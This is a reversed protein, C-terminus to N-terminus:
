ATPPEIRAMTTEVWTQAAANVQEPTKGSPDIPEGIVVQVAGSRILGKRPWFHGADHAIPVVPMGTEVSLVAGSIGYRRTTYPPLRTGEPFIMLWRGDALARKGQEVVQMVARRGSARDIAVPRMAALAWGLFPVWILERKLVWTHAPCLAIMAVTEWASQHKCFAIATGAPLNHRGEVTYRLGCVVRLVGLSFRAWSQALLWRYRYPFAGSIIIPLTYVVVGAGILTLALATRIFRLTESM